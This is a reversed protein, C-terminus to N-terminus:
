RGRCTNRLAGAHRTLPATVSRLTAAVAKARGHLIRLLQADTWRGATTPDGPHLATAAKGLYGAAHLYDILIPVKLGRAAAHDGIATIQQKNGDVLFIRQRTHHPDRRDAEDFAAGIM